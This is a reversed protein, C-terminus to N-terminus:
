VHVEDIDSDMEAVFWGPMMLVQPAPDYGPWEDRELCEAYLNLDRRYVKRAYQVVDTPLRYVAVSHPLDSEVALFAFDALRDGTAWEYVDAYFAQQVHYRYNAVSKGFGVPSADATTKLDLCVGHPTLWDPRIRCRVGTVPDTAFISSEAHGIELVGRAWENGRVAEAMAVIRDGEPGTLVFEEGRVAVAQKYASARRDDVGTLIVYDERFRDPELIAAHTATGIVMARSPERKAAYRFHAPSRAILDLGSKSIASSAHYAENSMQHFM